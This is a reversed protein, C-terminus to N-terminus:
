IMKIFKVPMEEGLFDPFPLKALCEAISKTFQLVATTM